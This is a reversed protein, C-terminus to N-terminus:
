ILNLSFFDYEINIIMNEQSEDLDAYINNKNSLINDLFIKIENISNMIQFVNNLNKFEDYNLNIYYNFPIDKINKEKVTIILKDTEIKLNISYEKDNLLFLFENSNKM